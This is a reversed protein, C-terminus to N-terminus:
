SRTALESLKRALELDRDESAHQYRLAMEATSHGLRNMLEKITAGSRAALVAGTHRLDHFRLDSRGATKRAEDWADFLTHNGLWGGNSPHPFLLADSRPAVHEVLHEKVAPLLHPPIAVVRVGASSKPTGIIPKRNAWTLAREVRVRGRELDLDHRRLECLEGWRLACWTALWVMLRYAEPMNAVIVALQELTAPEIPRKRKSSSSGRPLTCPNSPILGDSVATGLISKLLAYAHARMSPKAPDIAAYWSRVDATRLSALPRDGLVPLIHHDLAGRYTQRTTPKLTRAALWAEAYERFPQRAQAPTEPKWKSDIIRGETLRLFSWADTESLFTTPANHRQGDPAIYSAQFRGSPLKRVYGFRSRRKRKM